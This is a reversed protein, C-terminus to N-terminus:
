GSQVFGLATPRIVGHFQQTPGLRRAEVFRALGTTIQRLGYFEAFALSCMAEGDAPDLEVARRGADVAAAYAEAAPMLSYERLLNYSNALGVYGRAFTPHLTVAKEFITRAERLSRADLKGVSLNGLAYPEDAETPPAPIPAPLAGNM